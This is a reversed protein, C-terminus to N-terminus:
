YEGKLRQAIGLLRQTVRSVQESMAPGEYQPMTELPAFARARLVEPEHADHGEITVRGATFRTVDGEGNFEPVCERDAMTLGHGGVAGGLWLEINAGGGIGPANVSYSTVSGINTQVGPLPHRVQRRFSVGDVSGRAMGYPTKGPDPLHQEISAIVASQAAIYDSGLERNM